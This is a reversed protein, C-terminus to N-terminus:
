GSSNSLALEIIKKKEEADQRWYYPMIKEQDTQSIESTSELCELAAPWDSRGREYFTIALHYLLELRKEEKKKYMLEEKELSELASTFSEIAKDYEKDTLYILGNTHELLYMFKEKSEGFLREAAKLHERAENLNYASGVAKCAEAITYAFSNYEYRNSKIEISKEHHMIALEYDKLRRLTIALFNHARGSLPDLECAKTLYQKAAPFNNQRYYSRGLYVHGAVFYPYRQIAEQYYKQATFYDEEDYFYRAVTLLLWMDYSSSELAAMYYHIDKPEVHQTFEVDEIEGYVQLEYMTCAEYIGVLPVDIRESLLMPLKMVDTIKKSLMIKSFKGNRSYGEIRKTLNIAYGEANFKRGTGKISPHANLIVNGYHIGIAIDYFSKGNRKKNYESLFCERKLQIATSIATKLDRQLRKTYLIFVAEDGRVSYECFEIDEDSYGYHKLNHEIVHLAIRQFESIFEDYDEEPTYESITASGIIDAFLIIAETSQSIVENNDFRKKLESQNLERYEEYDDIDFWRQTFEYAYIQRHTSVLYQIFNGTYYAKPHHSIYSDLLKLTERSLLYCLTSAFSSNPSQPKEHFATIINEQGLEIVGFRKALKSPDRLNYYAIVSQNM